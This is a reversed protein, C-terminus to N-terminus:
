IAAALLAVVVVGHATWTLARVLDARRLRRLADDTFGRGLARHAPVAAAGTLVWTAIALAAGGLALATEGGPPEFALAVSTVLEVSMVPLVVWTTRRSHQEHYGGFRDGGVAAFLPYHVVDVFWALGVMFFTSAANALLLAEM